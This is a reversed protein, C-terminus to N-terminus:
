QLHAGSLGCQAEEDESGALSAGASSRFVESAKGQPKLHIPAHARIRRPQTKLLFRCAASIPWWMHGTEAHGHLLVVPSGQGRILYRLRVGNVKAFRETFGAPRGATRRTRNVRYAREPLHWALPLRRSVQEIRHLIVGFLRRTLDRGM